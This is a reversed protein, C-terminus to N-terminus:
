LCKQYIRFEDEKKTFVFGQSEIFRQSPINEQHVCAVFVDVSWQQGAFSCLARLAKSAWGHGRFEPAILYSVEAAKEEANWRVGVTGLPEGSHSLVMFDRRDSNMSYSYTFWHLHEALTIRHPTKFYRYVNPDGRWRVINEADNENIERLIVEETQFFAPVNNM